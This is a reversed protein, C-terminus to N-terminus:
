VDSRMYFSTYTTPAINPVSPTSTPSPINAPTFNSTYQAIGKTIRINDMYGPFPNANSNITTGINMLTSSSPKTITVTSSTAVSVGNLYLTVLSGTSVAAAHYWTNTTISSAASSLTVATGANNYSFNITGNTFTYFLYMYGGTTSWSATTGGRSILTYQATALSSTVYFWCEVTFPSASQGLDWNSSDTAVLHSTSGNFSLSGTGYKYTSTNQTVSTNTWSAGSLDSITGSDGNFQSVVNTLATSGLLSYLTPYTSSNVTSGNCLVWGPYTATPLEVISGIASSDPKEGFTYTTM